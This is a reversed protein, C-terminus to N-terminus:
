QFVQPAMFCSKQPFAQQFRLRRFLFKLHKFFAQQFLRELRQFPMTYDIASQPEKAIDVRSGGHSIKGIVNADARTAEDLKKGIFNSKRRFEKSANAAKLLDQLLNPGICVKGPYVQRSIAAIEILRMKDVIEFFKGADIGCSVYRVFGIM